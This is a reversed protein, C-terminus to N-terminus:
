YFLESCVEKEPLRRTSIGNITFKNIMQDVVMVDNDVKAKLSNTISRAIDKKSIAGTEPITSTRLPFRKFNYAPLVLIVKEIKAGVKNSCEDILTRIENILTPKDIIKFDNIAKTQKKCVKLINFRTNYYEAVLIKLDNESIELSAYIQKIDNSM